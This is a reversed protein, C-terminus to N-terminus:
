EGALDDTGCGAYAPISSLPRRTKDQRGRQWPPHELPHKEISRSRAQQTELASPPPPRKSRTQLRETQQRTQSSTRSRQQLKGDSTQGLLEAKFKQLKQLSLVETFVRCCRVKGEQAYLFCNSPTGTNPLVEPPAASIHHCRRLM